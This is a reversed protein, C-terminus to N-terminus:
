KKGKKFNNAAMVTWLASSLSRKEGKAQVVSAISPFSAPTPRSGMSMLNSRSASESGWAPMSSQSEETLNGGGGGGGAGQFVFGKQAVTQKTVGVSGSSHARKMAVFSGKRSGL